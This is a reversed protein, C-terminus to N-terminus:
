EYLSCLGFFFIVSFVAFVIAVGIIADYIGRIRILKKRYTELTLDCDSSIYETKEKIRMLLMGICVAGTLVTLPIYRFDETCVYPYKACSYYFGLMMTAFFVAVAIMDIRDSTYKKKVLMLIMAIFGIVALAISSYFVIGGFTNFVPISDFTRDKVYEGFISSKLTAILPNHDNYNIIDDPCEPRLFQMYNSAFQSPSFDLIRSLYSETGMFMAYGANLEHVFILPMGWRINNYIPFWLGLPFSILGFVIYQVLPKKWLKERISNIFAVLFVVAIPIAVYGANLKTMMGLGVYIACAVIHRMTRYRYWRLCMLFAAAMFLTALTDNNVSGSLYIFAPHFAVIATAVYLATGKLNFHEFIRYAIIVILFSYVLTLWQVSEVATRYEAGFVDTMIRMWLASLIHHLPPHGFSWYTSPDFNPLAANEYFYVIYGGHNIGPVFDGVDHQNVFITTSVIYWWRVIFASIFIFWTQIPFIRTLRNKKM